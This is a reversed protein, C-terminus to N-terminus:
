SETRGRAVPWAGPWIPLSEGRAQMRSCDTEAREILTTRLVHTGLQHGGGTGSVCPGAEGRSFYPRASSVSCHWGGEPRASQFIKGSSLFVRIILLLILRSKGCYKIRFRHIIFFNIRQCNKAHFHVM